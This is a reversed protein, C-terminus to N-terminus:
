RNSMQREQAAIMKKVMQGGIHGADKSAINGNYGQNLTIGLENAVEYKLNNMAQRANPVEIRNSTNNSM